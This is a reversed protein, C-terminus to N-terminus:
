ATTEVRQGEIPLLANEILGQISTGAAQRQWGVFETGDYQLTLRITRVETDGTTACQM